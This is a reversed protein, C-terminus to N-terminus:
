SKPKKTMHQPHVAVGFLSDALSAIRARLPDDDGAGFSAARAELRRQAYAAAKFPLVSKCITIIRQAYRRASCNAQVWAPAQCARELAGPYRTCIEELLRAIEPVEHHPDVKWVLGDPIQRYCGRDTVLTPRGYQLVELISASGGELAPHRLCCIVDSDNLQEGLEHDSVRGLIRLGQYDLALALSELSDRQDKTVPGVLSYILCDKLFPSSVIARIVSAVRKNENMHGITCLRIPGAELSARPARKRPTPFAPLMLVHPKTRGDDPLSAICHDSHVVVANARSTIEHMFPWHEATSTVWGYDNPSPTQTADPASGYLRIGEDCLRQVAEESGSAHAKGLFFNLMTADHLVAVCPKADLLDLAKAHFPWHDGFNIVTADYAEDPDIQFPLRALPAKQLTKSSIQLLDETRVVRVEVGLRGLEKVVMSSVRAIASDVNWPTAWLIRM